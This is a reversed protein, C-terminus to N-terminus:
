MVGDGGGGGGDDGGGDVGDRIVKNVVVVGLRERGNARSWDVGSVSM